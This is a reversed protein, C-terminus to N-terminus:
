VGKTALDNFRKRQLAAMVEQRSMQDSKMILQKEEADFHFDLKAAPMNHLPKLKSMSGFYFTPDEPDKHHASEDASHEPSFGPSM